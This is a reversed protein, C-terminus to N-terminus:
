TPGLRCSLGLQQAQQNVDQFNAPNQIASPDQMIQQRASAAMELYGEYQPSLEEPAQLRQLESVQASIEPIITGRALQMFERPNPLEGGALLRGAAERIPAQHRQCIQNASQVFEERSPGQEGCGAAVVAGVAVVLGATRAGQLKM